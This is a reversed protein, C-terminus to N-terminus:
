VDSQAGRKRGSEERGDPSRRSAACLDAWEEAQDPDLLFYAHPGFKVATGADARAELDAVITEVYDQGGRMAGGALGRHEATRAADAARPSERGVSPM